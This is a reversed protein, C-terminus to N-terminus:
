SVGFFSDTFIFVYFTGIDDNALNSEATSTYGDNPDLIRRQQFSRVRRCDSFTATRGLYIGDFFSRITVSLNGSNIVTWTVTFTQGSFAFSPVTVDTVLLDPRPETQFGWTPSPVTMNVGVVYDIRWLIRTGPLYNSTPSYVRETTITTPETPEEEGDRWVFVRYSTAGPFQPWLLPENLRANLLGNDPGDPFQQDLVRIVQTFIVSSGCDDMVEWVRSFTFGCQTLNASDSFGFSLPRNCPHQVSINNDALNSSADVLSGCAVSIQSPSSVVPPRPSSIQIDQNSMAANGASDTATWVRISACGQRPIDAYVLASNLDENDTVTPSGIAAPSFDEGCNVTM